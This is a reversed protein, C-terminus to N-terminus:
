SNALEPWPTGHRVGSGALYRPYVTLSRTAVVQAAARYFGLAAPEYGTHTLFINTVGRDVLAHLRSITDRYCYAESEAQSRGPVSVLRNRFWYGSVEADLQTHRISMLGLHVSEGDHTESAPLPGFTFPEGESAETAYVVRIAGPSADPHHLERLVETLVDHKAQSGVSLPEGTAIAASIQERLVDVSHLRRRDGAFVLDATRPLQSLREALEPDAVISRTRVPRSPRSSARVVTSHGGVNPELTIVLGAQAALADECARAVAVGLPGSGDLAEAASASLAAVRGPPHVTAIESGDMWSLLDEADVRTVPAGIKRVGREVTACAIRYRTRDDSNAEGSYLRRHIVDLIDIASRFGQVDPGDQGPWPGHPVRWFTAIM